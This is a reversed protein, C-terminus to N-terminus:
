CNEAPDAKAAAKRGRPKDPDKKVLRELDKAWTSDTYGSMLMDFAKNDAARYEALVKAISEYFSRQAKIIELDQAAYANTLLVQNSRIVAGAGLVTMERDAPFEKKAM